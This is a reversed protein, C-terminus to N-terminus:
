PQIWRQPIGFDYSPVYALVDHSPTGIGGLRRRAPEPADCRWWAWPRTGPFSRIFGPLVAARSQKWMGALNDVLERYLELSLGGGSRTLEGTCLYHRVDSRLQPAVRRTLTM